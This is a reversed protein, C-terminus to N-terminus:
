GSCPSVWQVGGGVVCDIEKLDMKIGEEWIRTRRGHPRRGEHKGVLDKCMNIEEGVRAVHGKQM